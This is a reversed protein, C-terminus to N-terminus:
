KNEGARIEELQEKAQDYNPKLQMTEELLSIAKDKQGQQEALLALNFVIKADTPSKERAFELAREAERIVTPELQALTIFVRARTKYFNLHANNLKIAQDSSLIAYQALQGALDEQKQAAAQVALESSLSSLEDHFLAEQPSLEIAKQLLAISESGYGLKEYQKAKAYLTDAKWYGFVRFLLYGAVLVCFGMGTWQAPSLLEESIQRKKLNKPAKKFAGSEAEQEKSTLVFLFAPTLYFLIQVVVTSFGFFNSVHLGTFAGLISPVLFSPASQSLMSRTGWFYIWIILLIYSFLGLTGTTALYNLFENHAKNYLFDWESVLNHEVPRDQYYSYAFTEVGSGFVPYRKWINIAGTWVIKRITGSETGGSELQTGSAPAPSQPQQPATETTFQKPLVSQFIPQLAPLLDQGFIGLMLMFSIAALGIPLILRKIEARWHPSWTAGNLILFGMVGFGAALGLFGSRSRTFLMTVFFLLSLALFLLSIRKRHWYKLFLGVSFLMTMILYAALWNPQGFTGFVRSQVDQVWCSTDFQKVVISCSPSHGFHEPIAYLSVLLAGYLVTKLVSVVEKRQVNNVFAYYLGIYSFISLLGGNFRSYYGLWSTRPHMSLITSFIQSLVFLAIPFDFPTKKWIFKKEAIMRLVWSCLILVTFAYTVIMKNFEFLEDNKFSFFLPVVIFLAHFLSLVVKRM